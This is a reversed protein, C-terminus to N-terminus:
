HKMTILIVGGAASEGYMAVAEAGKIVEIREIQEPDVAGLFNQRDLLRVGDV